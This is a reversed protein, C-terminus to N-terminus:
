QINYIEALIIDVASAVDQTIAESLAEEFNRYTADLADAFIPRPAIGETAIKRGILYALSKISPIRTKNRQIGGKNRIYRNISTQTGTQPIIPKVKIWEILPALPPFKGNPRRGYEIYKWYDLLSIDVSLVSDGIHVEYDLSDALKHSANINRSGLNDRYAVIFAEAFNELVRATNAWNLTKSEM